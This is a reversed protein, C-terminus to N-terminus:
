FSDLALQNKLYPYLKQGFFSFMNMSVRIEGSADRCREVTESNPKEIIRNLYGLENIDMVAFKKIREDDFKLGSRAYSILAHPASRPRILQQFAEKSYLNDGNCVIFTTELLEPYQDVTQEIADATGLPKEYGIKLYQIAIQIKIGEFSNNKQWTELWRKFAVNEPSTVLYIKTIGAEVANSVLYFLLTFYVLVLTLTIGKKWKPLLRICTASFFLVSTFVPVLESWYGEHGGFYIRISELVLGFLRGAFGALTSLPLFVLWLFINKRAYSYLYLKRLSEKTTCRLTEATM